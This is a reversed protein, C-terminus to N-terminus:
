NHNPFGYKLRYLTEYKPDKFEGHIEVRYGFTDMSPVCYFVRDVAHEDIFKGQETKEWEHLPFAAYLYPDEVDGMHFHHLLM